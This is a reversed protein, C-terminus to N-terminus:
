VLGLERARAAAETRRQVGLKGYINHAHTKVTGVTIFLREAIERNSLGQAVLGLVELERQSLPELLGPPPPTSSSPMGEEGVAKRQKGAFADLVGDVFTPAAHRLRPLLHRVAPGEDLFPRLYGAPAALHLAKELSALAEAEQGLAREALARLIHVALLSRQLGRDQAFQQLNALLAHAEAPRDQVLLLRALTCYAGELGFQPMDTPSLGAKEAWRAATEVEGLQLALDAECAAVVADLLPLNLQVTAQRTASATALAAERDGALAQIWALTFAAQMAASSPGLQRALAVGQVLHEHATALENRDYAITGLVLLPQGVLPLPKGRPGVARELAQRCLALAERPKLQLHLLWALSSWAGVTSILHGAEEGLRAMERYTRTAAPIDGSIMQASALNGLVTGLLGYPDGEELLELAEHALEYVRPVDLNLHAINIQLCTVLARSLPPADAPLLEKALDAWTEAADFQGLPLLVWGKLTALSTRSRLREQPMADLWRGVTAFRGNNIAQAAAPEVLREVQDWDEAALAHNM